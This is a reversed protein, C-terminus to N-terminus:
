TGVYLLFDHLLVEGFLLLVGDKFYNFGCGCSTDQAHMFFSGSSVISRSTVIRYCLSLKHRTYRISLWPLYLLRLRDDYPTHWQKMVILKTAFDQVSELKDTYLATSPDWVSSCYLWLNPSCPIQSTSLPMTNGVLHFQRPLSGVWHKTDLCVSNIHNTWSIYTKLTVGLISFILKPTSPGDLTLPCICQRSFLVFKAKVANLRLGSQYM